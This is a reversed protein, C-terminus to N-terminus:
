DTSFRYITTSQFRSGPRLTTSPFRPQNPSDPFHQTELALGDSQRYLRDSAGVLTADLFNGAYFQIGPESTWVEMVRGSVPEYLRAAFGLDEASLGDRNLVFNHDYGRAMMIQPHSSRGGAGIMRPLRFDFPTGAVAAIKGTPIQTSDTPIYSDANLTLIHNYITGEGEGMLNFYSHNTLNVVTPADTKAAYDIRLENADTLSYTVAVDLNGPYGEEGDVSLYSLEIGSHGAVAVERASWIRRDFGTKGGHLSNPGDNAFLAYDKGDLSFRGKAIRNAYRGTIAGFYPHESEYKDLSDFGLAVNAFRGKRDPVRISTLIGGYTIFRVEMGGANTLTYEEVAAGDIATGYIRMDCGREMALWGQCHYRMQHYRTSLSAAKYYVSEMKFDFMSAQLGL